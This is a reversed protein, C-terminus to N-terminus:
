SFLKRLLVTLGIGAGLGVFLALGFMAPIVGIQQLMGLQDDLGWFEVIKGDAIRATLYSSVAIERGTPPIVIFPGRQTGHSTYRIVVKDGEAVSEDITIRLDPFAKLFMSIAQTTGTINTPMGPPLTHDVEDPALFDALAALNRNNFVEEIYSRVLAENNQTIM